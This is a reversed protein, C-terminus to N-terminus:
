IIPTFENPVRDVPGSEYLVSLLNDFYSAAKSWITAEEEHVVPPPLADINNLSAEGTAYSDAYM